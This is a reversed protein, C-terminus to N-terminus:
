EVKILLTETRENLRVEVKNPGSRLAEEAHSRAATKSGNVAVILMGEVFKKAYPSDADVSKVLLGPSEGSVEALHIGPLAGIEMTSDTSGVTGTTGIAVVFKRESGNRQAIIEVQEGPRAFATAIRFVSADEIAKSGVRLIVDGKKLGALDAPGGDLVEEIMAGRVESLGHEIAISDDVSKVRAGVFGRVVEGHALLNLLVRRALNIPVAFGIGINGGGSGYGTMNMIATNIGILRGSADCLAGGSNGPNIAADTQLFQEYGESGGFGMGSRNTASVIGMTATIGIRFPNGVAFVLDGVEVADSDAMPLAPLDEREVKLVAIDVRADVGVITAKSRRKSSFEVIVEGALKGSPLHVVHSNTLIYGDSSVIVGSGVGLIRDNENEENGPAGFFRRMIEAESDEGSVPFRAPFVSVVSPTVKRLIAAYGSSEGTSIQPSTDQPFHAAAEAATWKEAPTGDARIALPMAAILIVLRLHGFRFGRGMM